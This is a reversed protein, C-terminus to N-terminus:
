INCDCITKSASSESDGFLADERFKCQKAAFNDYNVLLAGIGYVITVVYIICLAHFRRKWHSPVTNLVGLSSDPTELVRYEAQLTDQKSLRAWHMLSQMISHPFIYIGEQFSGGRAAECQFAFLLSQQHHHISVSTARQLIRSWSPLCTPSPLTHKRM